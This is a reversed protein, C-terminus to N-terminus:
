DDNARSSEMRRKINALGRRVGPRGILPWMVVPQLMRVWFPGQLREVRMTLRCGAGVEQVSMTWLHHGSMDECEYVFRDPPEAALVRITGRIPLGLYAKSDFMSLTPGGNQDRGRVELRQAAWEPHNRIDAVYAFVASPANQVYVSEERGFEGTWM